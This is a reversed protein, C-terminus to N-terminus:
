NSTDGKTPNATSGIAMIVADVLARRLRRRPPASPFRNTLDTHGADLVALVTGLGALSQDELTVMGDNPGFHTGLYWATAQMFLRLRSPTTKTTVYFTKPGVVPISASEEDLVEEWFERSARRTLSPLGGHNGRALVHEEIRGLGRAVLRHLWPMRNDIPPGDGLAYDAVGTGGFPGQVLFLAEIREAVFRPNHLAFALADCAGRSHAIVVLKEPGLDAIELFKDRVADANEDITQHSSPYITHIATKPVGKARLEKANQAFYNPMGENLFGAIFVYRYSQASSKVEAPIALKGALAADFWRRFEAPSVSPPTEPSQPPMFLSAFLTL